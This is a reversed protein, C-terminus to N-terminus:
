AGAVKVASVNEFRCKQCLPIAPDFPILGALCVIIRPASFTLRYAVMWVVVRVDMKQQIRIELSESM